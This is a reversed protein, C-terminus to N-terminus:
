WSENGSVIRHGNSHCGFSPTSCNPIRQRNDPVSSNPNDPQHDDDVCLTTCLLPLLLTTQAQPLNRTPPWEPSRIGYTTVDREGHHRDLWSVFQYQFRLTDPHSIADNNAIIRCSVTVPGSKASGNENISTYFDFVFVFVLDDGSHHGPREVVGCTTSLRHDGIQLRETQSVQPRPHVCEPARGYTWTLCM